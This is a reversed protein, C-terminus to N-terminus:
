HGTFNHFQILRPPARVLRAARAGAVGPPTILAALLPRYQSSYRESKPRKLAKAATADQAARAKKEKGEKGEGGEYVWRCRHPAGRAGPPDAAPPRIGGASKTHSIRFISQPCV